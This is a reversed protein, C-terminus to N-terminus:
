FRCSTQCLPRQYLWRLNDLRPQLRIVEDTLICFRSGTSALYAHICNLKHAMEPKAAIAAPKIEAYVREGSDLILELDPTYRRLKSGDPYHLTIPQERYTVVEPTAELLYFADLELLGEHYVMRGTKRSPFKGRVIGSSPTVVKRARQQTNAAFGSSTRVGLRIKLSSM